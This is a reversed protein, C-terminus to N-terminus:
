GEWAQGYRNVASTKPDAGGHHHRRHQPDIPVARRQLQWPPGNVNGKITPKMTTAIKDLVGGIYQALKHDNDHFNFTMRVLPRASRM